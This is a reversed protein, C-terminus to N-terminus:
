EFPMAKVLRTSLAVDFVYAQLKILKEGFVLIHDIRDAVKGALLTYILRQPVNCSVSLVGQRSITLLGIYDLSQLTMDNEFQPEASFELEASKIGDVAPCTMNCIFVLSTIEVHPEKIVDKMSSPTIYMRTTIEWDLVEFRYAIREPKVEQKSDQKANMKLEGKVTENLNLQGGCLLFGGGV